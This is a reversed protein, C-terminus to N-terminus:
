KEGDGDGKGVGVGGSGWGKKVCGRLLGVVCCEMRWSPRGDLLAM